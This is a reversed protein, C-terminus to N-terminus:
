VRYAFRNQKSVGQRMMLCSSVVVRVGHEYDTYVSSKNGWLNLQQSLESCANIADHYRRPIEEETSSTQSLLPARFAIKIANQLDKSTVLISEDEELQEINDNEDDSDWEDVDPYDTDDEEEDDDTDEEITILNDPQPDDNSSPKTAGDGVVEGGEGREPDDDIFQTYHGDSHKGASAGGLIKTEGMDEPTVSKGLYYEELDDYRSGGLQVHIFKLIDMSIGVEEKSMSNAAKNSCSFSSLDAELKFVSSLSLHGRSAAVIKAFGYKRQDIPPQLLIWDKKLSTDTTGSNGGFRCDITNGENVLVM